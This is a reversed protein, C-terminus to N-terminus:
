VARVMRFVVARLLSSLAAQGALGGAAGPEEIRPGVGWIFALEYIPIHTVRTSSPRSRISCRRVSHRPFRSLPRSPPTSLVSTGEVLGKIRDVSQRRGQHRARRARVGAPAGARPLRPVHHAPRRPDRGRPRSPRGSYRPPLFRRKRPGIVRSLVNVAVAEMVENTVESDYPSRKLESIDLSNQPAPSKAFCGENASIRHANDWDVMTLVVLFVAVLSAFAGSPIAVLAAPWSSWAQLLLIFVVHDPV